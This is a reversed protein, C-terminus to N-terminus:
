NGSDAKDVVVRSERNALEWATYFVLRAVKEMKEFHIKEVDDGPAHYDPHTGNFYFIIPINHKAFNYHDSRYYFREPSDKTNYKYDLFVEPTYKKAVEESLKHLETSLMDSGIIYIYNPKDLHASDVRGVMDINLNTVTNKLPFIPSNSYHESGLLGKEEGTVWMFLISRRPAKGAAKAKSFAEALELVTVTGSGDDDAGNNIKGDVIGIHDYHATVVLIEDKKDTGEMFGLVNESMIAKKKREATIKLTNKLKGATSKGTETIETMSKTFDDASVGLVSQAATPAIFIMPISAEEEKNNALELRKGSLYPKFRASMMKFDEDKAAVFMVAKAGKSMATKVKSNNNITKTPNKDKSVLYNGEKDKPEGNAVVIIKGKVDLNAYDSYNAHEIGYGAFVVDMQENKASMTGYIMFDEFHVLKKKNATISVKNWSSETLPVDQFHGEGRGNPVPASFGMAKLQKKLYEAAMKQGKKGTERGEYADSAIISLHKKLDDKTVTNAYEVVADQAKAQAFGLLICITFIWHKM